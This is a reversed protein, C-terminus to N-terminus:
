QKFVCSKAEEVAAKKVVNLSFPGLSNMGGDSELLTRFLRGAKDDHRPAHSCMPLFPSEPLLQLAMDPKTSSSNDTSSTTSGLRQNYPQASVNSPTAEHSFM